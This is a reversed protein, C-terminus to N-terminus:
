SQLVGVGEAPHREQSEGGEAKTRLARLTETLLRSLDVCIVVNFHAVRRPSLIAYFTLRTREM